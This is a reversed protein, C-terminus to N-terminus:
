ETEALNRVSDCVRRIEAATLEGKRYAFNAVVKQDRYLIVTVTADAALDYGAPSEGSASIALPLELKEDFALTQLTPLLDKSERATFVAFSRLGEARHADVLRDIGKLLTKLEPTVERFFVMAVPRDANRCVYCVSKGKLPGTVTRVYFSAVSEGLQPGSKLAPPGGEASFGCGAPIALAILVFGCIVPRTKM